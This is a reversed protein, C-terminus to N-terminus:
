SALSLRAHVEILQLDELLHSISTTAIVFLRRGPTPPVKRLLILLTQLVQNSFRHGIPTYEILREIDDIFIVSLPSRYADTFVQALSMLRPPSAFLVKLLLQCKQYDQMGIMSDPSVLRVLPFDSEAALKAAIATQSLVDLSFLLSIDTVKGTGRQGELLVSMLPTRESNRTQNLLQLLTHYLDALAM